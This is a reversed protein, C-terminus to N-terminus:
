IHILSLEKTIGYSRWYSKNKGTYNTPIFPPESFDSRWQSSEIDTSYLLYQKAEYQNAMNTLLTRSYNGLGTANHYLRKADYAIKM